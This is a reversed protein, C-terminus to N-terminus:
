GHEFVNKIENVLRDIDGAGMTILMQPQHKELYPILEDKSLLVKQPNNIKDLIMQSNVGEIPLERAPYIDLLIIQDIDELSKAFDDAFDRTRSYLHPQFIACIKKDPHLTKASTICAKIEKPHHAYDDIFIFDKNRIVYEFRRKVGRYSMLQKRINEHNVGAVDAIAAAAVANEINHQGGIQYCIDSIIGNPTVIDFYQKEDEIRINKPFYDSFNMGYTKTNVHPFIHNLLLKKTILVGGERINDAFDNFSKTLVRHNGYIDLHDADMATIVAIDPSLTLFSRDYEDAEVLFLEADENYILNTDYNLTIGGIFATLKREENIIHAAAALTSTKGHTGAVAFTPKTKTLWGLIQSRKKFPIHSNELFVFQNNEKPIAPTYVAFSLDEPILSPDDDFDVRIGESILLDTIESPTKDYGAVFVGKRHFYRALASMGIGGIGLFYISKAELLFKTM